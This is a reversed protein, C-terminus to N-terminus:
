LVGVARAEDESIRGAEIMASVRAQSIMRCLYRKGSKVLEVDSETYGIEGLNNEHCVRRISPKTKSAMKKGHTKGNARGYGNDNNKLWRAQAGLRGAESRSAYTARAETRVKTLKLHGVQGGEIVFFDEIERWVYPWKQPSVGARNRLIKPDDPLTNSRSLWMNCLLRHYAQYADPSLDQTDVLWDAPFFPMYAFESM